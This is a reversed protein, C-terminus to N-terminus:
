KGRFISCNKLFGTRTTPVVYLPASIAAQPLVYTTVTTPSGAAYTYSAQSTPAQSAPTVPSKGAQPVPTVSAPAPPAELKINLVPAQAPAATPQAYNLTYTQHAQLTPVYGVYTPTPQPMQVYSMQVPASQVTVGYVLQVPAAVVAQQVPVPQAAVPVAAGKHKLFFHDGANAPSGSLMAVLVFGNAAWARRSRSFPSM